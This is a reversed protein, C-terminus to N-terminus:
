RLIQVKSGKPYEKVLKEITICKGGAEEIKTKATQSFHFAGVVVPHKLLGDGLVKGPVLVVSNAASARSIHNLNLVARRGRPRSLQEAASEWIKSKDQRGKVKLFRVTELLEPNTITRRM